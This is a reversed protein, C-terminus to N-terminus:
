LLGGKSRYRDRPFLPSGEPGPLSGLGSPKPTARRRVLAGYLVVLVLIVVAITMM